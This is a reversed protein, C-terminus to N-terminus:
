DFSVVTQYADKVNLLQTGQFPQTMDGDYILYSKQIRDHLLNKLYHLPQVFEKTFTQASKIEIATLQRGQEFLVDVEKQSSDRYFYLNTPQGSNFLTKMLESVVLNEFLHGYLPDRRVQHRSHIGLLYSALGTDYFYIKPSKILRKKINTYYPPLRFIIFSAELVSLWDKITHSSVGVENSLESANFIQGMRAACLKLFLEFRTFDKIALLRRVDREVYTELYNRYFRLTNLSHAHLKPYFGKFILEDTALYVNSQTLETISLPLLKIIDTRGALSQTIAENLSLQQSGTLIFLGAQPHEDVVVQLYSLLEPARQIEDIIAGQPYQNLFARPDHIALERVDPQELNAYPKDPFLTKVATTKGSQRPGLITVVPYEKAGKQIHSYIDRNFEM